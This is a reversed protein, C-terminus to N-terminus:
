APSFALAPDSLRLAGDADRGVRPRRADDQVIQEAALPRAVHLGRRHLAVERREHLAVRLPAHGQWLACEPKLIDRLVFRYQRHTASALVLVLNVLAKGKARKAVYVKRHWTDFCNSILKRDNIRPRCSQVVNLRLGKLRLMYEHSKLETLLVTTKHLDLCDAFDQNLLDHARTNSALMRWTFFVDRLWENLNRTLINALVLYHTPAKSKLYRPLLVTNKRWQWVSEAIRAFIIRRLINCLPKRYPAQVLGLQHYQRLKLMAPRVSQRFYIKACKRLARAALPEGSDSSLCKVANAAATALEAAGHRRSSSAAMGTSSADTKLTKRGDHVRAAVSGMAVGYEVGDAISNVSDHSGRIVLVGESLAEQRNYMRKRKRQAEELEGPLAVYFNVSAQLQAMHMRRSNHALDMLVSRLQSSIYDLLPHLALRMRARRSRLHAAWRRFLKKVPRLETPKRIAAILRDLRVEIPTLTSSHWDRLIKSKFRKEVKHLIQYMRHAFFNYNRQDNSSGM